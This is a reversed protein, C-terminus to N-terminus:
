GSYPFSSSVLLFSTSTYVKAFWLLTGHTCVCVCAVGFMQLLVGTQCITIDYERIGSPYDAHM